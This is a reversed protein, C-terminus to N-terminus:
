CYCDYNQFLDLLYDYSHPLVSPSGYTVSERNAYLSGILLLMAHQLGIPIEGNDDVLDSLKRGIHISVANEAVEALTLVYNDDDKFDNDLNLHRKIKEISLFM